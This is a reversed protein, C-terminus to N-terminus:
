SEMFVQHFLITLIFNSIFELKLNQQKRLTGLHKQIKSTIASIPDTNSVVSEGM